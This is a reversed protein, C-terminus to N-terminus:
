DLKKKWGFVAKVVGSIKKWTRDDATNATWTTVSVIIINLGKWVGLVLAWNVPDKIWDLISGM